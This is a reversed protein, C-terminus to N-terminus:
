AYAVLKEADPICLEGSILKPLLTDRTRALLEVQQINKSAKQYQSDAINAYARRVPASASLVSLEAVEKPKVRQRSGTSGTARDAIKTQINASCLLSYLFGRDTPENPVFPMFETSCVSAQGDDISPLWTRPFQPNLKSALVAQRPVSYKGSKISGGLDETPVRGDDFAPISFHQWVIEPEFKPQVSETRLTAIDSLRSGVWGEPVWGLEDDFVFRRPFLEQVGYPLRKRRDVLAKRVEARARLAEPIHQTIDGGGDALANDIVPDFDVFWSKFLAQAMSELTANTQRNLEIKDDLTGLVNAIAKQEALPPLKLVFRSCDPVRIHSVVSGSGEHMSFQHQLAPSLFSYLLFRSDLVDPNARYQMLRQGLFLNEDERIMGVEGMPAERTLLVDGSLVSARRTWKKFVEKEVFKCEDLNVRGNRVNMTRLM